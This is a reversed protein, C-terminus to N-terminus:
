LEQLYQRSYVGDDEEVSIFAGHSVKIMVCCGSETTFAADLTTPYASRFFAGSKSSISKSDQELFSSIRDLKTNLNLIMMESGYDIYHCGM